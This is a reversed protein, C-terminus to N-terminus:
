VYCRILRSVGNVCLLLQLVSRNRPYDQFCLGDNHVYVFPLARLKRMSNEMCLNNSEIDVVFFLYLFYYLESMEVSDQLETKCM